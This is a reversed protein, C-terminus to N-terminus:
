FVVPDFDESPGESQRVSSAVNTNDKIYDEYYVTNWINVMKEDIPQKKSGGYYPIALKDMLLIRNVSVLTKPLMIEGLVRGYKGKANFKSILIFKNGEKELLQIAREKAALGWSKEFLNRTRTEPTDIGNLRIRERIFIGFGLDIVGDITDGDVVREVTTNYQYM